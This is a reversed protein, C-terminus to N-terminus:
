AVGFLRGPGGGWDDPTNRDMQALLDGAKRLEAITGPERRSKLFAVTQFAGERMLLEAQRRKLFEEPSGAHISAIVTVGAHLCQLLSITDEERGIEDCLIYDPALSRVAQLIGQAKPYGDLVDCCPGLFNGPIGKYVGALEGREDIVAVRRIAGVSGSSLQRAIDRLVTTKGSSPAGVLLLGGEMGAEKMRQLLSISCGPYERSIRLCISSIDRLSIIEGNQVVATGCIGARHGGRLSLFGQRIEKEHSYVSFGCLLQFCEEVAEWDMQFLDGEPSCTLRGTRTLFYIDGGCSLAVPYGARIRVEQVQRKIGAPISLLLGGLSGSLLSVAADFRQDTVSEM